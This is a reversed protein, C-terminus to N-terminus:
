CGKRSRTNCRKEPMCGQACSAGPNKSRALRSSRRGRAWDIIALAEAKEQASYDSLLFRAGGEYMRRALNPAMARLLPGQDEELVFHEFTVVPPSGQKQAKRAQLGVWNVKGDISYSKPEAGIGGIGIVADFEYGRVQGMCDRAGFVGSEDPDGIHTRKYTLIRM